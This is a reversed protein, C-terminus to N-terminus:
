GVKPEIHKPNFWFDYYKHADPDTIRSRLGASRAYSELHRIVEKRQQTNGKQGLWRDLVKGRQPNVVLLKQFSTPSDVYWGPLAVVPVVQFDIKLKKKLYNRLFDAHKHAQVIPQDTVFHPFKLQQGDFVVHAAKSCMDSDTVPKSVAKTEIVLVKDFGVVVHDINGGGYPIDHFVHAGRCMLLNLEQGVYEEGELGLRLNKLVSFLTWYRKLLGAMIILFLAIIVISVWRESIRIVPTIIFAPLLMTFYLILFDDQRRSFETRISHGPLRLSHETFPSYRNRRRARIIFVLTSGLMLILVIGPPAYIQWIATTDSDM